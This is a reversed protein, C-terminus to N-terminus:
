IQGGSGVVTANIPSSTRGSGGPYNHAHSHLYGGQTNVHRFNVASGIAVDKTVTGTLKSYRISYIIVAWWCLYGAYQAWRTHASVRREHVWRGRGLQGFRPLPDRLHLPLVNNSGRHSMSSPGHLSPDLAQPLCTRRRPPDVVPFDHQLRDYRHHVVWGVQLKRCCRPLSWYAHAM